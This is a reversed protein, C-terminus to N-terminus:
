YLIRQCRPCRWVTVYLQRGERDRAQVLEPEMVVGCCVLSPPRNPSAIQRPAVFQAEGSGAAGNESFMSKM